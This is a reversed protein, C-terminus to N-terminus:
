LTRPFFTGEPQMSDLLLRLLAELDNTWPVPAKNGWFRTKVDELKNLVAESVVGLRRVGDLSKECATQKVDIVVIGDDKRTLTIVYGSCGDFVMREPTWIWAELEEWGAANLGCGMIYLPSGPHKLNGAGDRYPYYDERDKMLSHEYAM